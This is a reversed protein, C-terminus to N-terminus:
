QINMMVIGDDEDDTLPPAVEDTSLEGLIELNIRGPQGQASIFFGCHFCKAEVWSGPKLYVSKFLLKKCKRNPCHAVVGKIM